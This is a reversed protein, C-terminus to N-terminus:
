WSKERSNHGAYIVPICAHMEGMSSAVIHADHHLLTIHRIKGLPLTTHILYNRYTVECGHSGGPQRVTASQGTRAAGKDAATPQSLPEGRSKMWLGIGQDM